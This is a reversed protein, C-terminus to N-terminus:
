RRPGEPGVFFLSAALALGDAGHAPECPPWGHRWKVGMVPPRRRADARAARPTPAPRRSPAAEMLVAIFAAILTLPIQLLTGARTSHPDSGTPPTTLTM